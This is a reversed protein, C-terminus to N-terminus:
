VRLVLLRVGGSVSNVDYNTRGFEGDYHLRLDPHRDNWMVSVGAGLLMSDRGIDPGGTCRHLQRRRRQRPEFGLAYATDGHM